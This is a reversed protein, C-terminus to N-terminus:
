AAEGKDQVTVGFAVADYEEVAPLERDALAQTLGAIVLRELVEAQSRGTENVVASLAMQHVMGLRFSLSPKPAKRLLDNLRESEHQMLEKFQADDIRIPTKNTM